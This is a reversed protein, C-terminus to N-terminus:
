AATGSTILAIAAGAALIGLAHGGTVRERLVAIALLVTTVPYLSALTAAVDLRGAQSALVYFANGGMDLVGVLLAM